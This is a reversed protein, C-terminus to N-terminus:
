NKKKMITLPLSQNKYMTVVQETTTADRWQKDHRERLFRPFRLGIGREMIENGATHTPSLTLDAARVEWVRTPLFWTDPVM